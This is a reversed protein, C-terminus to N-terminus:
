QLVKSLRLPSVYVNHSASVKKPSMDHLSPFHSLKPSGPGQASSSSSTILNEQMSSYMSIHVSLSSLKM